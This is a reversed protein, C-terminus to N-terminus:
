RPSKSIKKRDDKRRGLDAGAPRSSGKKELSKFEHKLEQVLEDGEGYRLQLKHTIRELNQLHKNM